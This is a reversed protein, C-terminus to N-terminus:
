ASWAWTSRSAKFTIANVLFAYFTSGVCRKISPFWSLALGYDRWWRRNTLWSLVPCSTSETSWALTSRSAKFTIANIVLFAYFTSGVCRKISQIWSFALRYIRWWGRRNTLWSLVPFRISETSWAWTSRSAKFTIANVLFAYFTSGVCRKISPFWSLALRYNRWWRRNTLWSLVPCSTSETSWAWTSWSTKL